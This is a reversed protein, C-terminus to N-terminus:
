RREARLKNLVATAESAPITVSCLHAIWRGAADLYGDVLWHAGVKFDVGCDGGGLGTYLVFRGAQPGAFPEEIKLRIRRPTLWFPAVASELDDLSKAADILDKESPSFLKPWFQLVFARLRAVSPLRDESLDEGYVQRWRVQYDSLAKPFVDEVVGVFVASSKGQLSPIQIGPKTGVSPPPPPACSCATAFRIFTWALIWTAASGARGLPQTM